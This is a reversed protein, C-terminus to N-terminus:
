YANPVAAIASTAPTTEPSTGSPPAFFDADEVLEVEPGAAQPDEVLEVDRLMKRYSTHKLIHWLVKGQDRGLLMVTDRNIPLPTGDADDLNWAAIGDVLAERYVEVLPINSIQVQTLQGQLDGAHFNSALRLNIQQDDLYGFERIDVWYGPKSLPVRVYEIWPM